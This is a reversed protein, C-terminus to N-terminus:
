SLELHSMGPARLYIRPRGSTAFIKGDSGRRELEATGIEAERPTINEKVYVLPREAEADLKEVEGVFDALEIENM